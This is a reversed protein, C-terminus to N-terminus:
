LKLSLIKIYDSYVKTESFRDATVEAIRNRSMLRNYKDTLERANTTPTFISKLKDATHAPSIGLDVFKPNEGFVSNSAFNMRKCQNVNTVEASVTEVGSVGSFYSTSHENIALSRKISADFSEANRGRKAISPHSPSFIDQNGIRTPPVSTAIFLPIQCIQLFFHGKAHRPGKGDWSCEWNEPFHGCLPAGHRHCKGAPSVDQAPEFERAHGGSQRQRASYQTPRCSPHNPQHIINTNFNQQYHLKRFNQQYHSYSCNSRKKQDSGDM